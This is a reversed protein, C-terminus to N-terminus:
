ELVIYYEHERRLLYQKNTGVMLMMYDVVNTIQYLPLLSKDLADRHQLAISRCIVYEVSKIVVCKGVMLMM